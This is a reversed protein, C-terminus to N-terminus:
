LCCIFVWTLRAYLNRYATYSANACRFSYVVVDEKRCAATDVASGYSDQLSPRLLLGHNEVWCLEDNENVRECTSKVAINDHQASILAVPHKNQTQAAARIDGVLCIGFLLCQPPFEAM